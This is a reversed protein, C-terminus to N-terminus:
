ILRLAQGLVYFDFNRTSVSGHPEDSESLVSIRPRYAAYRRSAKRLSSAQQATFSEKVLSWGGDVMRGFHDDVPM